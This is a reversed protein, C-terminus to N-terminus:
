QPPGGGPGGGKRGGGAGAPGGFSPGGGPNGQMGGGPNGRPGTNSQGNLPVDSLPILQTYTAKGEKSQLTVTEGKISVVRYTRKTQGGSIPLEVSSGPKVIVPDGQPLELIAYIGDGSMIGSVRAVAEERVEYPKEPLVVAEPPALRIPEVDTFVYPPPPIIKWSVYFPDFGKRNPLAKVVPKPPGPAPAKGNGFVGGPNGTAPGGPRGPRGPRGPAPGSTPTGPAGPPRQGFGGPGPGKPRGGPTTPGAQGVSTLHIPAAAGEPRYILWSAVGGVFACTAISSITLLQRRKM